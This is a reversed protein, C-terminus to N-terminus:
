QTLNVGTCQNAEITKTYTWTLGGSGREVAKYTHSGPTLTKSIVYGPDNEGCVYIATASTLTGAFQNDIWVDIPNIGLLSTKITLSGLNTGYNLKVFNSVYFPLHLCSNAVVTLTGDAYYGYSNILAFTHQGKTSEKIIHASMNGCDKYLPMPNGIEGVLNGDLYIKIPLSTVDRNEFGVNGTTNSVPSTTDNAKRCSSCIVLLGPILFLFFWKM